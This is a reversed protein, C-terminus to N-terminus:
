VWIEQCFKKYCKYAHYIANSDVVFPNSGQLKVPGYFIYKKRINEVIDRKPWRFNGAGKELFKMEVNEKDVVKIIKGIYYPDKDYYM